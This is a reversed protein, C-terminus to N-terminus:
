FAPMAPWQYYEIVVERSKVLVEKKQPLLLDFLITKPREDLKNETM